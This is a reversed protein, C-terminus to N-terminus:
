RETVEVRDRHWTTLKVQWKIRGVEQDKRLKYWKEKLHGTAEATFLVGWGPANGPTGELGVQLLAM